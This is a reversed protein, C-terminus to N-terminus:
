QEQRIREIEMNDADSEDEEDGDSNEEDNSGDSNADESNSEHDSGEDDNDSDKDNVHDDHDVEENASKSLVQDDDEEEDEASSVSIADGWHKGRSDASRGSGIGVENSIDDSIPELNCVYALARARLERCTKRDHTSNGNADCALFKNYRERAASATRRKCTIKASLM